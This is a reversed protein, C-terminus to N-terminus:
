EGYEKSFSDCIGREAMLKSNGTTTKRSRAVERNLYAIHNKYELWYSQDGGFFRLRSKLAKLAKSAGAGCWDRGTPNPQESSMRIVMM